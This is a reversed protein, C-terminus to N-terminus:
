VLRTAVVRVRPGLEEGLKDGLEEGLMEDLGAALSQGAGPAALVFLTSGSGTVHVSGDGGAAGHSSSRGAFRRVVRECASHVERLAPAVRMAPEALDNFLSASLAAISAGGASTRALAAAESDRFRFGSREMLWADFARYVAPTACAIPPLVLVVDAAPAIVREVRDGFGEVLAARPISRKSPARSGEDLGDNLEDDLFFGVDSGLSAGISCVREHPLPLGLALNGLRLATAADSSGGGLGGGTPISKRIRLRFGARQGAGSSVEPCALLARLARVALDKEMPWDVRGLPTGDPGDAFEVTAEVVGAQDTREVWIDDALGVCAFWSAIRHWGARRNPTGDAHVAHEPPAVALCLNVKAYARAHIMCSRQMEAAPIPASTVKGREPM